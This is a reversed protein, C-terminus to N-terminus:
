GTIYLSLCISYKTVCATSRAQSMVHLPNQFAQVMFRLMVTSHMGLCIMHCFPTTGENNSISFIYNNWCKPYYAM